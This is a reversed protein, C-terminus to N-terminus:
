TLDRCSGCNGDSRGKARRTNAKAKHKSCTKGKEIVLNCIGNPGEKAIRITLSGKKKIQQEKSRGVGRGDMCMDM